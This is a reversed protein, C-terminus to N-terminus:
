AVAERLDVVGRGAVAEEKTGDDVALEYEYLGRRQGVLDAAHRIEVRVDAGGNAVVVGDGLTKSIGLGPCSFRVGSYASFDLTSTGPGEILVDRDLGQYLVVTPLM